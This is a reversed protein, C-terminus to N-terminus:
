FSMIIAEDIILLKYDGVLSRLKVSTTDSLMEKIDAEDGNLFLASIDLENVIKTIM